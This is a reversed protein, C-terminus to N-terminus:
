TVLRGLEIGLWLGAIWAVRRSFEVSHAALHLLLEELSFSWSKQRNSSNGFPVTAVFAALSGINKEYLGFM